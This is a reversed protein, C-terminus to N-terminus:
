LKSILHINNLDAYDYQYIGDAAVVIALGNETVIDHVDANKLQKVLHINKVDAVNFIKLGDTGDCIFLNDGDKSLGEPHVLQYSTVLFSNGLDHIDVIQLQNLSGMCASADNLTVYAYNDDAIVPDCARLHTFEGALKPTAPATQVDFMYMGNNTGIFLRNKLTYITEVHPDIQVSSTFSPRSPQSIDFTTLSTAGVTYLFSNLINFRATSGNTAVGTGIAPASANANYTAPAAACNLCSNYYGIYSGSPDYDVTTDRATWGIIINISDANHSTDTLYGASPYYYNNHDPFINTVFNEAKVDLPDSIDFTVLDGYSDAYLTNGTIALDENGPINIFSVNRPTSPNSNDIVHIGKGQEALLIYKGAVTIKGPAMISIAPQSKISERLKTLTEFVPTTIQYTKRIKDKMCGPLLLVLFAIFCVPYRFYFKKKMRNNQLQSSFLRLRQM